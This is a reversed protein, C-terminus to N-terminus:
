LQMEISKNMTVTFEDVFIRTTFHGISLQDSDLSCQRESHKSLDVGLM